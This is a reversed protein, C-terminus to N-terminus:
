ASPLSDIFDVLEANLRDPRELMVQHGADPVVVLEAQPFVDVLERACRIPTLRDRGGVVVLVELAALDDRAALEHRADYRAVSPWAQWYADPPLRDYSRAVIQMDDIRPRRGFTAMVALRGADNDPVTASLAALPGWRLVRDIMAQGPPPSVPSRVASDVFVVGSVRDIVDPTADALFRGIVMGGMSHGVLVVERLDNDTLLQALDRANADITAGDTGAVSRGHGRLDISLLRFRDGLRFQHHWVEADLTVGHLFIVPRGVGLELWHM